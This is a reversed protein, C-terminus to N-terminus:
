DVFVLTYYCHWQCLCQCFELLFDRIWKGSPFKDVLNINSFHVLAPGQKLKFGIIVDKCGLKFKIEGTNFNSRFCFADVWEARSRCLGDAPDAFWLFLIHSEKCVVFQGPIELIIKGSLLIADLVDAFCYQAASSSLRDVIYVVL